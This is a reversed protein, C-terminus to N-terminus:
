GQRIKQIFETIKDKSFGEEELMRIFASGIIAGNAFSCAALFAKQDSIGFGVMRPINLQKSQIRRFYELQHDKV